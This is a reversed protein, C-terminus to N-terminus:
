GESRASDQLLSLCERDQELRLRALLLLVFLFTFSLVAVMLTQTMEMTLGGAESVVYGPHMTRWWSVSLYIIPVDLFGLIGVVAALGDASPRM